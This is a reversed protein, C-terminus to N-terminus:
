PTGQVSVILAQFSYILPAAGLLSWSSLDERWAQSDERSIVISGKRSLKKRRERGREKSLDAHAHFKTSSYMLCFQYMHLTAHM